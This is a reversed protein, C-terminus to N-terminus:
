ELARSDKKTNIWLVIELPPTPQNRVFDATGTILIKGFYGQLGNGINFGIECKDKDYFAGKFYPEGKPGKTSIWGAVPADQIALPETEGCFRQFNLSAGPEGLIGNFFGDIGPFEGYSWPDGPFDTRKVFQISPTALGVTNSSHSRTAGDTLSVRDSYAFAVSKANNFIFSWKLKLTKKEVNPDPPRRTPAPTPTPPPPTPTPVPDRMYTEPDVSQDLVRVGPRTQFAWSVDAFSATASVDAADIVAKAYHADPGDEGFRLVYVARGLGSRDTKSTYGTQSGYAEKIKDFLTPDNTSGCVGCGMGGNGGVEIGAECTKAGPKGLLYDNVNQITCKAKARVPYEPDSFVGTKLDFWDSYWWGDSDATLRMRVNRNLVLPHISGSASGTASETAQGPEQNLDTPALANAKPSPSPSASLKRPSDIALTTCGAVFAAAFGLTTSIRM